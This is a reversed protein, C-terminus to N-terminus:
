CLRILAEGLLFSSYSRGASEGRFDALMEAMRILVLWDIVDLLLITLLWIGTECDMKEGSMSQKECEAFCGYRLM